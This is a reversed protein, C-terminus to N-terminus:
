TSVTLLGGEPISRLGPMGVSLTQALKLLNSETGGICTCSVCHVLLAARTYGQGCCLVCTHGQFVHACQLLAKCGPSHLVTLLVACRAPFAADIAARRLPPNTLCCTAYARVAGSTNATTDDTFSAAASHQSCGLEAM